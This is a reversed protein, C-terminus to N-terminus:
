GGEGFENLVGEKADISFWWDNWGIKKVKSMVALDQGRNSGLYNFYHDKPQKIEHRITGNPEYIRIKQSKPNGAILAAIVNQNESFIAHELNEIQIAYPAGDLTWSIQNELIHLKM